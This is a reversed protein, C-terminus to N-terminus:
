YKDHEDRKLALVIITRLPVIEYLKPIDAISRIHIGKSSDGGKKVEGLDNELMVEVLAMKNVM